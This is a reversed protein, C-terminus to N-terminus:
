LPVEVDLTFGKEPTSIVQLHGGLAKVRERAGLLGFGEHLVSTGVGDDAISLRIASQDTCALTIEVHQAHAHKRVNTLSEQVLRYLTFALQSSLQPLTDPQHITIALESSQVEQILATLAEPSSRNDTPLTRLAAVSGRIQGLGERTLMQAKELATGARAPDNQMIARAAELQMNITTLYHGVNDHIERALRNRESLTAIAEVQTSYEHLRQNANSLEIRALTEHHLAETFIVVFVFSAAMSLVNTLITQIDVDLYWDLGTLLLLLLICLPVVGRRPLLTVNYAALPTLLLYGEGNSFFLLAGCLVIQLCFYAVTIPPRAMRQCYELGIIGSVTYLICLGLLVIISFPTLPISVFIFIYTAIILLFYGRYERKSLFTVLYPM